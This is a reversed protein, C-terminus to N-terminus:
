ESDIGWLYDPPLPYRDYGRHQAPGSIPPGAGGNDERTHRPPVQDRHPGRGGEREMWEVARRVYGSADLVRRDMGYAKQGVTNGGSDTFKVTVQGEPASCVMRQQWTVCPERSAALMALRMVCSAKEMRVMPTMGQKISLVNVPAKAPPMGAAAGAGTWLLPAKEPCRQTDAAKAFALAPHKSGSGPISLAM